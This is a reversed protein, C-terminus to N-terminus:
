NLLHYIIVQRGRMFQLFYAKVQCSLSSDSERILKLSKKCSFDLMQAVNEKREQETLLEACTSVRRVM